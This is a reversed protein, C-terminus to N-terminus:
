QLIFTLWVYSSILMKSCVFMAKRISFYVIFCTTKVMLLNEVAQTWFSVFGTPKIKM